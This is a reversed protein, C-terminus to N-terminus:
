RRGARREAEAQILDLSVVVAREWAPAVRSAWLSGLGWLDTGLEGSYVLRTGGDARRLEYTETVHPVPGRVLRFSIREPREFRVTELTSTALPGNKTVHEALVMGEGREWVRLKDAMARPTRRYPDAIVDFVAEPPAAIRRQIPGLPRIRRGLGLDLTLSGRVVLTGFSALGLAPPLARRLWAPVRM